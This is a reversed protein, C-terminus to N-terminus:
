HNKSHAHRYETIKRAVDERGRSTAVALQLDLPTCKIHHGQWVVDELRGAALPGQEHPPQREIEPHVDAVWEILAGCFARGFWTAVWNPMERVPEVLLDELAKGAERADTVALDVDKPVVEIGRVALAASGALWWGVRGDLREAATRLALEWHPTAAGTQHRVMQEIGRSFNAFVGHIQESDPFTREFRQDVRAFGMKVLVDGIAPDQAAVQFTAGREGRM